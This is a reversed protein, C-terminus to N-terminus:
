GTNSAFRSRKKAAPPAHGHHDSFSAVSGFSTAANSDVAGEQRLEAVLLRARGAGIHLQKRLNEASIPRRHLAWHQANEHRARTMLGEVPVAAGHVKQQDRELLPVDVRSTGDRVAACSTGLLTEGEVVADHTGLVDPKQGQKLCRLLSPGVESWGILLLPGVADFAAKGFQRTILPEAVNLALTILSSFILLRKAPRLQEPTAGHLALYRVALLLGLISLDVAPAVLPAVWPTVELRLALDWVNGFGFLFTLGIVAGIIWTVARLPSSAQANAPGSM